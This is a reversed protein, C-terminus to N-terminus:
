ISVEPKSALIKAEAAAEGSEEEIAIKRGNETELDRVQGPKNIEQNATGEGRWGNIPPGVKDTIPSGQGQTAANRGESAVDREELHPMAQDGLQASGHYAIETQGGHGFFTDSGEQSVKHEHPNPYAGGGSEGPPARGHTGISSVGDAGIPKEGLGTNFGRHKPM